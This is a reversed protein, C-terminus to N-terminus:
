HRAFHRQRVHAVDTDHRMDIGSFRSARLADQEVGAAGMAESFDMVALRGHVPHLLLALPSDGDGRCRGRAHPAFVANVNDVGGTMDIESRFNLTRQAYEVAGHGKETADAANLGKVYGAHHMDHHIKVTQADMYPELADYAYPLPPLTFRAEGGGGGAMQGFAFSAEFGPVAALGGVAAVGKVFERRTSM